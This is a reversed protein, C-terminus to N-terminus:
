WRRSFLVKYNYSGARAIVYSPVPAAAGDHWGVNYHTKHMKAISNSTNWNTNDVSDLLVTMNGGEDPKQTIKMTKCYKSAKIDSSNGGTGSLAPLWIYSSLHSSIRKNAGLKEGNYAPCIYMMSKDPMYNLDMFIGFNRGSGKGWGIETASTYVSSYPYYEEFDNAYTFTMTLFQKIQSRCGSSVAKERASNLAPLLLSALIAIISIVILLEVLTFRGSRRIRRGNQRNKM